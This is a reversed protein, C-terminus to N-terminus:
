DEGVPLGKLRARRRHGGIKARAKARDPNKAYWERAYAKNKERVEPHKARYRKAAQAQVARGRPTQRYKRGEAARKAKEAPTRQRSAPEKAPLTEESMGAECTQTLRGTTVCAPPEEDSM